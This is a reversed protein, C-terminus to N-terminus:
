RSLPPVKRGAACSEILQALRRERTEERKASAVWHSAQRRYSPPRASWDAWAAAHERLRAELEPPLAQPREHSYIGSREETRAEFAAMGAPRMRGEATLRAVKDINVRSWTSRPKRPTFRNCYSTEDVGRRVGDIWGFCLAEDVAESWTMTPLGSAKRRFGVLVETETAHHEELWARWEAPTEFFLVQVGGTHDPAM